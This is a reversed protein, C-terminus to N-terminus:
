TKEKQCKEKGEIGIFDSIEKLPINPEDKTEGAYIIRDSGDSLQLSLTVFEEEDALGPIFSGHQLSIKEVFKIGDINEPTFKKIGAEVSRISKLPIKEIRKRLMESRTITVINEPKNFVAMLYKERFLFKEAGLFAGIFLFIIILYHIFVTDSSILRFVLYSVIAAASAFLMSSFERTYIGKHLVSQKEAKFSSTTFTLTDKEINIQYKKAYDM